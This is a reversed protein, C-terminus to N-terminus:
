LEPRRVGPLAAFAVRARALQRDSLGRGLVRNSLYAPLADFRGGGADRHIKWWASVMQREIAHRTLPALDRDLMHAMSVFRDHHQQMTNKSLSAEERASLWYATHELYVARRAAAALRLPLSQDQIFVQEDAGGAARWIQARVLYGMRVIKRTATFLLPQESITMRLDAPL